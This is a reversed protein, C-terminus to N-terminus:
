HFESDSAQGFNRGPDAYNLRIMAMSATRLSGYARHSRCMAARKLFIGSSGKPRSM